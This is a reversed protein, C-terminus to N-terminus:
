IERGQAEQVIGDTSSAESQLREIEAKLAEYESMKSKLFKLTISAKEELGRSTLLYAYAQKNDSNKFNKAKVFGKEILAQVCFNAKGLSIGLAQALARQSIRPNIELEKLVRYRYEDSLM